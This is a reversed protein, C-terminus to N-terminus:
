TQQEKQKNNKQGSTKRLILYYNLYRGWVAVWHEEEALKRLESYCIGIHSQLSRRYDGPTDPLPSTRIREQMRLEEEQMCWATLYFLRMTRLMTGPEVGFLEVCKRRMSRVTMCLQKALADRSLSCLVEGNLTLFFDTWRKLDDQLAADQTAPYFFQPLLPVSLDGSVFRLWCAYLAEDCWPILAVGSPLERPVPRGPAMRGTVLSLRRAHPSIARLKAVGAALAACGPGYVPPSLAIVAALGDPQFDQLSTLQPLADKLDPIPIDCVLLPATM